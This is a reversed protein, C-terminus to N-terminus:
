FYHMLYFLFKFHISPICFLKVNKKKNLFHNSTGGLIGTSGLMLIKM